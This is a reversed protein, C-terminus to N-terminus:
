ATAGRGPQEGYSNLLEVIRTDRRETALMLATQDQFNRWGPDPRAHELLWRTLAADGRSVANFLAASAGARAGREYLMQVLAVDGSWAAHTLVPIGHAGASDIRAADEDLLRRVDDGRGLMAATYIALPAGQALLYEALERNGV